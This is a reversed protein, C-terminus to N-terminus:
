IANLERPGPDADAGASSAANGELRGTLARPAIRAAARQFPTLYAETISQADRGQTEVGFRLRGPTKAPVHLTGFVWDWVALCSGLNKNFHVPDSSHHV